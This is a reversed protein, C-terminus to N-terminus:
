VENKFKKRIYNLTAKKMGPRLFGGANDLEESVDQVFQDALKKVNKATESPDGYEYEKYKEQRHRELGQELVSRLKKESISM